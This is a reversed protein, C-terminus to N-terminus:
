VFVRQESICGPNYLLQLKSRQKVNPMVYNPMGRSHIHKCIRTTVIKLKTINPAGASKM